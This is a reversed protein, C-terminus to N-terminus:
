ALNGFSEPYDSRILLPPREQHFPRLHLAAALRVGECQLTLSAVHDLSLITLLTAITNDRWPLPSGAGSLRVVYRPPASHGISHNSILGVEFVAGEGSVLRRDAFTLGCIVPEAAEARHRELADWV